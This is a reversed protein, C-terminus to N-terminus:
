RKPNKKGSNKQPNRSKKKSAARPGRSSKKRSKPLPETSLGASEILHQACEELSDCRRCEEVVDCQSVLTRFNKIVNHLPPAYLLFQIFRTLRDSTLRHVLHELKCADELAIHEDIGLIEHFFRLFTIRAGLVSRAAEKGTKTLILMRNRDEAVFGKEKLAKLGISTAGKTIGLRRAVDVARAYGMEERLEHIALIYHAMSHTLPTDEFAKWVESTSHTQTVVEGNFPDNKCKTLKM